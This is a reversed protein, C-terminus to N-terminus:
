VAMGGDTDWGRYVSLTEKGCTLKAAPRLKRPPFHPGYVLLTGQWGALTEELAYFPKDPYLFLCDANRIRQTYFDACIFGVRADLGLHRAANVARFALDPDAEIGLARTFLGATCAATGDGSGLDVLLRCSRLGVKKFFYYLHAPRSRAWAGRSTLKYPSPESPAPAGGHLGEFYRVLESPGAAPRGRDASSAKRNM